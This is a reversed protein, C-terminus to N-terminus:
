LLKDRDSIFLITRYYKGSVYRKSFYCCTFYSEINQKENIYGM